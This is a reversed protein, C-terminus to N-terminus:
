ERRDYEVVETHVANCSKDLLKLGIHLVFWNRQQEQDHERRYSWTMRTYLIMVIM